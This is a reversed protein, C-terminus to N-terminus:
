RWIGGRNYGRGGRSPPVASAEGHPIAQYNGTPSPGGLLLTASRRPTTSRQPGLFPQPQPPTLVQRHPTVGSRRHPSSRGSREEAQKQLARLMSSQRTSADRLRPSEADGKVPAPDNSPSRMRPQAVALRGRSFRRSPSSNSSRPSRPRSSRPSRIGGSRPSLGTSGTMSEDLYVGGEGHSTSTKPALRAPWPPINRTTAGGAPPEVAPEEPGETYAPLLKKPSIGRTAESPMAEAPLMTRALIPGESVDKPTATTPAYTSGVMSPPTVTGSTSTCPITSCRGGGLAGVCSVGGRATTWLQGGPHAAAPQGAVPLSHKTHATAPQLRPAAIMPAVAAPGLSRPRPIAESVLAPAPGSSPTQQNLVKNPAEDVGHCTVQPTGDQTTAAVPPTLSSPRRTPPESGEEHSWGFSSSSRVQWLQNRSPTLGATSSSPTLTAVSAAQQCSSPTVGATSSCITVPSVTSVTAAESLRPLSSASHCRSPVLIGPAQSPTQWQVSSRDSRAQDRERLRRELDAIKSDKTLLEARLWALEADGVTLTSAPTLATLSTASSLTRTITSGSSSWTTAASPSVQCCLRSAPDAAFHAPPAQGPQLGCTPIVM